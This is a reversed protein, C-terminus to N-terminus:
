ALLAAAELGLADALRYVNLLSLNVEGREIAGIYTRHVGCDHAFAEQSRRRAERLERVRAGFARLRAEAQADRPQRPPVFAM